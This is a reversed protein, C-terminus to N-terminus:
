RHRKGAHIPDLWHLGCMCCYEQEDEVPPPEIFRHGFAAIYKDCNPCTAAREVGTQRHEPNRFLRMLAAIM